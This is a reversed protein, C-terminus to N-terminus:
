ADGRRAPPGATLLVGRRRVSVLELGVTRLRAALRTVLTRVSAPHGSAGTSEYAAVVTEYRVVKGLHLLLVRAVPVQAPTLAVWSTGVWLLGDDDLLPELAATARARRRVAESRARLDVPDPPTRMWDELEDLLDPPEAGPEVLLVRPLGFWALHRRLEDEHPWSLVSVDTDIM